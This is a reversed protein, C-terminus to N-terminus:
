LLFLVAMNHANYRNGTNAVLQNTPLLEGINQAQAIATKGRLQVIYSAAKQKTNVENGVSKFKSIDGSVENAVVTTSAAATIALTILSGVLSEKFHM